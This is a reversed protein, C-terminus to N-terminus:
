ELIEQIARSELPYLMGTCGALGNSDLATNAQCALCQDQVASLGGFQEFAKTIVQGFPFAIGRHYSEGTIWVGKFINGTAVARSYSTIYALQQNAVRPNAWDNGHRLTCKRELTWPVVQITNGV